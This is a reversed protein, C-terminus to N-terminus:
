SKDPMAAPTRLAPLSRDPYLANFLDRVAHATRPGFGLLYLGDMVVIRRNKGAPTKSLTPHGAIEEVSTRLDGRNITVIVEPAAGIMSEMSAPQYGEVSGFANRGGALRIVADASTGKGAALIRGGSTSLIFLVSVRDEVKAVAAEIGDMDAMVASALKEASDRADMVEGIKRIKAAIGEPTPDDPVKVLPISAGELVDLAGQPGADPEMLILTPSVSLVGEASLARMYGVNPHDALAAAPYISTTDVAAINKELGLAYLIETISGGVSLVRSRDYSSGALAAHALLGAALWAMGLLLAPKRLHSPGRTAQRRSEYRRDM